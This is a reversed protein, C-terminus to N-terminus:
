VSSPVSLWDKIIKKLSNIGSNIDDISTFTVMGRIDSSWEILGSDDQMVPAGKKDEKRTAGMHLVLKVVGQKNMLNFTIRDEGDQVYSPANWKIHEELQPETDLIINRLTDVQLRKDDSLDNLFEEVTKYKNMYTDYCSVVSVTYKVYDNFPHLIQRM